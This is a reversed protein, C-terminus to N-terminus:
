NQRKSFEDIIPSLTPKTIETASQARCTTLSTLVHCSCWVCAYGLLLLAKYMSWVILQHLCCMRLITYKYQHMHICRRRHHERLCVKDQKLRIITKALYSFFTGLYAARLSITKRMTEQASNWFYYHLFYIWIM